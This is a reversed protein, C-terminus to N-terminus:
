PLHWLSTGVTDLSDLTVGCDRTWQTRGLTVGHQQRGPLATHRWLRTTVADLSRMGLTAVSGVQGRGLEWSPM